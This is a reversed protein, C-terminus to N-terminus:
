NNDKIFKDQTPKFEDGIIHSRKVNEEMEDQYSQLNLNKGEVWGLIHPPHSYHIPETGSHTESIPKSHYRELHERNRNIDDKDPQQM